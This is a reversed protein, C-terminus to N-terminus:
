DLIFFKICKNFIDKKILNKILFFYIIQKVFWDIILQTDGKPPGVDSGIWDDNTCEGDMM